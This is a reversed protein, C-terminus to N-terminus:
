WTTPDKTVSSSVTHEIFSARSTTLSHFGSQDGCRNMVSLQECSICAMSFKNGSHLTSSQSKWRSCAQSRHADLVALPTTACLSSSSAKSRLVACEEVLSSNSDATVTSSFKWTQFLLLAKRWQNWSVHSASRSRHTQAKRCSRRWTATLVLLPRSLCFSSKLYLWRALWLSLLRLPISETSM